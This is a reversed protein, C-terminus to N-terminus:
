LDIDEFLEDPKLSNYYYLVGFKMKSFNPKNIKYNISKFKSCCKNNSGIRRGKPLGLLDFECCYHEKPGLSFKDCIECNAWNEKEM